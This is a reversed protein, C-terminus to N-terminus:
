KMCEVKVMEIAQDLVAHVPPSLQDSFVKITDIEVGILIIEPIPKGAFLVPLFAILHQVGMNHTSFEEVSPIEFDLFEFCDLMGVTARSKVADVVIVKDCDEFYGLAAMGATGADIL